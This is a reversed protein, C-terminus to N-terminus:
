SLWSVCAPTEDTERGTLEMKKGKKRKEKKKKAGRNQFTNIHSSYQSNTM